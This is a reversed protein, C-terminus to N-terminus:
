NRSHVQLGVVEFEELKWQGVRQVTGNQVFAPFGQLALHVWVWRCAM